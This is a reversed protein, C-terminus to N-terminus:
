DAAVEPAQHENSNSIASGKVARIYAGILRPAKLRVLYGTLRAVGKPYRSYYSKSPKARWM